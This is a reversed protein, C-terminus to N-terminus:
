KKKSKLNSIGSETTNLIKAMDKNALGLVNGLYTVLQKNAKRNKLLQKQGSDGAIALLLAIVVNLKTEFRSAADKDLSM